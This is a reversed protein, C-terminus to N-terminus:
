FTGNNYIYTRVISRTIFLYINYINVKV